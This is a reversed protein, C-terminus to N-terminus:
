LALVRYELCGQLRGLRWGFRWLWRAFSLQTRQFPLSTLLRWWASMGSQWTLAPMGLPRYRKYLLVNMKGWCRAQAYISHLTTRYRIHVVADPAFCLPTGRLQVRFCYDTDELAPLAEDFGGVAEHLDRRIGLGCGGAHPLFPPYRYVQVGADQAPARISVAWPDNLQDFEFRSCVFGHTAVAQGIASVWDPAAVDDADIFALMEGRAARAGVNRSHAAGRRDSADVLRLSPLRVRYREFIAATDDTSGNDAVIIEWPESWVQRALAELQEALAVARAHFQTLPRHCPM